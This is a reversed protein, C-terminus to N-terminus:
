EGYLEFDIDEVDDYTQHFEWQDHQKIEGEAFILQGAFCMGPEEYSIFGSLKPFRNVIGNALEDCGPGWATDYEFHISSEGSLTIVPNEYDTEGNELTSYAYKKKHSIGSTTLSYDGWKTGWNSNCWDYWNDSGYKEILQENREKSPSITGELEKPMPLLNKFLEYPNNDKNSGMNTVLEIFQEVDEKPGTIGLKNNCHNPM